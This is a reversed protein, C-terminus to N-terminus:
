NGDLRDLVERCDPFRERLRVFHQHRGEAEVALMAALDDEDCVMMTLTRYLQLAEDHEGLVRARAAQERLREVLEAEHESGRARTHLEAIMTAEQARLFDLVHLRRTPTDLADEPGEFAPLEVLTEGGIWGFSGSFRVGEPSPGLEFVLELGPGEPTALGTACSTSSRHHTHTEVNVIAAPAAAQVRVVLDELRASLWTTLESARRM